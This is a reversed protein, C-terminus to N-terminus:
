MWGNSVVRRVPPGPDPGDDRLWTHTYDEYGHTHPNSVGVCQQEGNRWVPPDPDAGGDQKSGGDDQRGALREEEGDEVTLENLLSNPHRQPQSVPFAM